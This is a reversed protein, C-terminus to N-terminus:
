APVYSADILVAVRGDHDRVEGRAAALRRGLHIVAGHGTVAAGNAAIPRLFAARIEVPRMAPRGGLARRLALDLVREGILVGFGGHVGGYRNAFSPDAAATVEVSGADAAVIRMGLAHDVRSATLDRQHPSRHSDNDQFVPSDFLVSGITARAVIEGSATTVVGDGIGFGDEVAAAHAECTVVDCERPLPRLLELHLHSTVLSRGDGIATAVACGIASDVLVGLIGPAPEGREDGCWAPLQMASEVLLPEVRLARIGASRLAPITGVREHVNWLHQATPSIM